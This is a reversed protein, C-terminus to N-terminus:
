AMGTTAPSGAAASIRSKLGAAEQAAETQAAQDLGLLAALQDLKAHQAESLLGDAKAVMLAATYAWARAEASATQEAGEFAFGAYNARTHHDFAKRIETHSMNRQFFQSCCRQIMIVEDPHLKGDTGALALMARFIVQADTRARQVPKPPPGFMQYIGYGALALGGAVLVWLVIIFDIGIWAYRDPLEGLITALAAATAALVLGMIVNPMGARM